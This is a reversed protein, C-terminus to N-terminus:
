NYFKEKAEKILDFSEKYYTYNSAFCMNLHVPISWM